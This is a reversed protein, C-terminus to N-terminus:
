RAAKDVAPRQKEMRARWEAFPIGLDPSGFSNRSGGGYRRLGGGPPNPAGPPADPYPPLGGRQEGKRWADLDAPDAAGHSQRLHLDDDGRAPATVAAVATITATVAAALTWAIRRHTM